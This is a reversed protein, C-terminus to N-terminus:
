NVPAPTLEPVAPPAAAHEWEPQLSLIKVIAATKREIIVAGDRVKARMPLYALDGAPRPLTLLFASWQRDPMHNSKKLEALPRAKALMAAAEDEYPVHWQPLQPLDSGGKAASFLLANRQKRDQPLRAAVVRPGFLPLTTGGAELSLALSERDVDLATVVDFRDINFVLLAPRAIFIAHMGYILAALQVLAVVSLDFKLSKKSRDYIIATILPGVTIDVGILILVMHGVGQADALPAPYWVFYILGAAALGIMTCILLHLLSARLRSALPSHM